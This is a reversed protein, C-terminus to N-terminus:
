VMKREIDNNEEVFVHQILNQNIRDGKEKMFGIGKGTVVCRRGKNDRLLVANHSIIYLAKL